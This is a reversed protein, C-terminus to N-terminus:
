PGDAQFHRVAADAVDGELARSTGNRGGGGRHHGLGDLPLGLRLSAPEEVDEVVQEGGARALAQRLQVLEGDEGADALVRHPDLAGGQRPVGQDGRQVLLLIFGDGGLLVSSPASMFGSVVRVAGATGAVAVASGASGASTSFPITSARFLTRSGSIGTLM